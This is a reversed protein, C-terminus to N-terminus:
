PRARCTFTVDGVYFNGQLKCERAVENHANEWGAHYALAVIATLLLVTVIQGM